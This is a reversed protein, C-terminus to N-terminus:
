LISCNQLPHCFSSCHKHYFIFGFLISCAVKCWNPAWWKHPFQQCPCHCFLDILEQIYFPDIPYWHDITWQSPPTLAHWSVYSSGQLPRSQNDFPMHYPAVSRSQVPNKSEKPIASLMLFRSVILILLELVCNNAPPSTSPSTSILLPMKWPSEKDGNSKTM